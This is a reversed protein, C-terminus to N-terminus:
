LSSASRVSDRHILTPYFCHQELSICKGSSLSLNTAFKAMEDIPYRLTTLMPHFYCQEMVNDFGVMSVDEPIRIGRAQFEWMASAAYIDNFAIIASVPMKRSIFQRAAAKGRNIPTDSESVDVIWNPQVFIGAEDMAKQYGSLRSNLEGRDFSSNIFGITRHGIKLLANTAMYIGYSSDLWVCRELIGEIRRCIVVIGPYQRCLRKLTEDPIAKSYLIINRCGFDLLSQVADLEGQADYGSSYVLLHYSQAKAEEEVAKVLLSYFPSDLQSVVVGITQRKKNRKLRNNDSTKFGQLVVEKEIIQKAKESVRGQNNIARSVTALSYGTTDAIDQMTVNSKMFGVDRSTHGM